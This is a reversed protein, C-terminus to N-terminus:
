CWCYSPRLWDAFCLPERPRQLRRHRQCRPGADPRRRDVFREPPALTSVAEPHTSGAIVPCSASRVRRRPAIVGEPSAANRPQCALSDLVWQRRASRPSSPCAAAISASQWAARPLAIPRDPSKKPRGIHSPSQEVVRGSAARGTGTGTHVPTSGFRKRSIRSIPSASKGRWRPWRIM